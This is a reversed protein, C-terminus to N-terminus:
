WRRMAAAPFAPTIESQPQPSNRRWSSYLHSRYLRCSTTISRHYGLEFVREAHRYRSASSLRLVLVQCHGDQPVRCSRSMLAALFM